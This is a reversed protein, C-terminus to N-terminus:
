LIIVNVIQQAVWNRFLPPLCKQGDKIVCIPGNRLPYFYNMTTEIDAAQANSIQFREANKLEYLYALREAELTADFGLKDMLIIFLINQNAHVEIEHALTSGLLGWSEFASSGIRVVTMDFFSKRETLGREQIKEDFTIKKVSNPVKIGFMEIARAISKDNKPPRNAPLVKEFRPSSTELTAAPLRFYFLSFGTILCSTIHLILSKSNM